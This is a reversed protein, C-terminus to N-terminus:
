SGPFGIAANRFMKGFDSLGWRGNTRVAKGDRVLDLLATETKEGGWDLLTALEDTTAGDLRCLAGFVSLDRNASKNSAPESRGFVEEATRPEPTITALPPIQPNITNITPQFGSNPSNALAAAAARIAEVESVLPANHIVEAMHQSLEERAKKDSEAFQDREKTVRLLEDTAGRIRENLERITQSMDQMQAQVEAVQALSTKRLAKAEEQTLPTEDEIEQQVKKLAKHQNAWYRYMWRAPHPYVLLFGVASALPGALCYGLWYWGSPYLTDLYALKEQFSMGSLVALLPRYNWAAWSLAFAGFLPSKVREYLQAKIEKTLDDLM